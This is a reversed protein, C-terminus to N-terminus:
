ATHGKLVDASANVQAILNAHDERPYELASVTPAAMNARFGVRIGLDGLITLTAEDYSNCPHSMAMPPENLLRDLYQFNRTYEWRQREVPLRGIRLPHTHSHLGIVHEAAHLRLLHDDALWLGEALMEPSVDRAAMMDRMVRDYADAELVEDRVYRFRRDEATYFPFSALYQGTDTEAFVTAVRDAYPGDAIASFFAQYFTEVSDFCRMRFARYIELPELRGELVGTYVFWFGTLGYQELVPRAVDYQCCLADDFTLCVDDADLRNSLADALWARAPRIRQPGIFEILMALQDADISGQGAPHGPGHFHHFMVGYPRMSESM